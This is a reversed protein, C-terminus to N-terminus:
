SVQWTFHSFAQATDSFEESAWGNNNNYKKYDGEIFPEAAIFKFPDDDARDILEYYSTFIFDVATTAGANASFAHALQKSVTQAKLDEEITKKRNRASVKDLKYVKAALRKQMTEDFMIHATRMAGDAFYGEELKITTEQTIFKLDLNDWDIDEDSKFIFSHRRAREPTLAMLRPWDIPVKRLATPPGEEDGETIPRLGGKHRLRYGLSSGAIGTGLDKTPGYHHISSVAGKGFLKMAALSSLTAGARSKSDSVSAKAIATITVGLKMADAHGNTMPQIHMKRRIGDEPLRANAYVNELIKTMKNTSSPIIELISFDIGQQAMNAVITEIYTDSKYLARAAILNQESDASDHYKSFHCPADCALVILRAGGQWELKLCADLGGTVDEPGDGGGEANQVHILRKISEIDSTLSSTVLRKQGDCHDRYGIFAVRMKLNAHASKLSDVIQCLQEKANTIWSGMSGTLDMCVALDLSEAKELMVKFEATMRTIKTSMEERISSFARLKEVEAAKSELQKEKEKLKKDLAAILAQQDHRFKCRDGKMCSGSLFSTCVAAPKSPPMTKKMEEAALKAELEKVKAEAENARLTSAGIPSPKSKTGDKASMMEELERLRQEAAEARIASASPPCVPITSKAAALDELEKIRKEAVVARLTSASPPPSSTPIALPRTPAAKAALAAEYERIRQEAAEARLTSESPTSSKSRSLAAAELERLRREAEAARLASASPPAPASLSSAKAAAAELEKIRQEAAEARLTSASPPSKKSESSSTSMAAMAAELEKIRQEAAHARLVSESPIDSSKM